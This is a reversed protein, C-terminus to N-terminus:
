EPEDIYSEDLVCGYYKFESVHELCIGYVYVECELGEERNLVMVKSKGANVKLGRRTCVEAFWGVM